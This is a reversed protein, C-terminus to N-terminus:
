HEVITRCVVLIRDVRTTAGVESASVEAGCPAACAPRECTRSEVTKVARERRGWM